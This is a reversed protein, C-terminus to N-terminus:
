CSPLTRWQITEPPPTLGCAAGSWGPGTYLRFWLGDVCCLNENAGPLPVQIDRIRQALGQGSQKGRAEKMAWLAAFAEPGMKELWALEIPSCVREFLKTRWGKVVQIDVGVPQTDLACLALSGSHSLNFTHDEWGLFAPKGHPLRELPPLTHAGWHERAAMALLTYAGGRGALNKAGYVVM